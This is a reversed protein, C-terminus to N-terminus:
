EFIAFEIVFDVPLILIDDGETIEFVIELITLVFLGFVLYLTPLHDFGITHNRIYKPSLM